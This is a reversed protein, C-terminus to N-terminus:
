YTIFISKARRNFFKWSCPLARFYLSDFSLVSNLKDHLNSQVSVSLPTSLTKTPSDERRIPTETPAGNVLLEAAAAGATRLHERKVSFDGGSSIDYTYTNGGRAPSASAVSENRVEDPSNARAALLSAGAVSYFDPSPSASSLMEGFGGGGSGGSGSTPSPSLSDREDQEDDFSPSTPPPQAHLLSSRKASDLRDEYIGGSPMTSRHRELVIAEDADADALKDSSVVSAAGNASLTPSPSPTSLSGSGSGAGSSSGAIGNQTSLAKKDYAADAPAPRSRTQIQM